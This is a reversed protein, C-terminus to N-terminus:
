RGVVKFKRVVPRQEWQGAFSEGKVAFVHKGFSLRHKPRYPSSCGKWRQRDLRCIFRTNPQETMDAFQFVPRRNHTKSLPGVTIKTLPAVYIVNGIKIVAPTGSRQNSGGTGTSTTTTGGSPPPPGGGTSGGEQKEEEPPPPAADQQVYTVFSGSCASTDGSANTATAHFTTTAGAKVTVKIGGVRLEGATGTGAPAGSCDATPYLKISTGGEAQGLVRPETTSNPSAPTIGTLSPAPPGLQLQASNGVSVLITGTPTHDYVDNESLNGDDNTLRESTTFFAHDGAESAAWFHPTDPGNGGEPGTSVWVPASGATSEYIDSNSDEDSPDLQQATVYFVHSGDGSSGAFTSDFEPSGASALEVTAEKREYVDAKGGADASELSEETSFLVASGDASAWNFTAPVEANGTSVLSTPGATWEYVDFANDEDSSSLKEATEFYVTTGERSTGAFVANHEGEGKEGENGTSVLAVTGTTPTWRYVDQSLDHDEGTLQAKTEFLVFGGKTTARYIPACEESTLPAPCTGPVSVLQTGGSLDREYIDAESDKDAAALQDTTEFVVKTGSPGTGLFTAPTSGGPTALVPAASGAERVYVDSSGDKDGEVLGEATTFFVDSGTKAAGVFTVPLEANGCPSCLSSGGSLLTTEGNETNRQYVDRSHDHDEEVLSEATSFWVYKGDESIGDFTVNYSDNGGTPGTSIERTVMSEIGAANDYFREYVDVFANDTDGQVLNGSSTFFVKEGSTSAAAFEAPAASAPSAFALVSLALAAFTIAVRPM